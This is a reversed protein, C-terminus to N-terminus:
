GEKGAVPSTNSAASDIGCCTDRYCRIRRIVAAPLPVGLCALHESISLAENLALYVAVGNRAAIPLLAGASGLIVTDVLQGTVLSAGYLVIKLLGSFMKARSLSGAVWARGFGLAFDMAWLALLALVVLDVPGILFAALGALGAKVGHCLLADGNVERM